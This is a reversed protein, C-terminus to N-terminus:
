FSLKLVLLCEDVDLLDLLLNLTEVAHNAGQARALASRVAKGRVVPSPSLSSAMKRGLSICGNGHPKILATPILIALKICKRETLEIRNLEKM